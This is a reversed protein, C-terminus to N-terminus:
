RLKEYLDIIKKGLIPHKINPAIDKLCILVFFREHLLPHPITLDESCIIEDEYLLIDIDMERPAGTGKNNRGFSREVDQTLILLEEPSLVTDIEIACNYFDAQTDVGEPRTLHIRSTKKVYIGKNVNLIEICKELNKKCDGVNSGLELYVKKMKERM